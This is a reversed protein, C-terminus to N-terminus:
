HDNHHNGNGHQEVRSLAQAQLQKLLEFEEDSLAGLLTDHDPLLPTGDKGTIEQKTTRVREGLEKAIDDLCARLERIPGEEFLEVDVQRTDKGTGISRVDRRYMKGKAIDAVLKKALLNLTRVREHMLAYGESLVKKKEAAIERELEEAQYEDWAACRQDWKWRSAIEYWVGPPESRQKGRNGEIQAHEQQFVLPIKRVPTMLRYTTFRRHWLLSEGPQRDWLQEM